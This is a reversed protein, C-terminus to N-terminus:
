KGHIESFGVVRIGIALLAVSAPLVLLVWTLNGVSLWIVKITLLLLMVFLAHSLTEKLEGFSQPILWSPLDSQVFSFMVAVISLYRFSNFLKPYITSM